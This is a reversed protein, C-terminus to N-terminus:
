GLSLGRVSGYVGCLWCALPVVAGLAVSELVEAGRRALPSRVPATFGLVITVVSMAAAVMAPWPRHPTVDLAASLVAIGMTAAGGVLLTAIQTGDAHSRARLLLAAGAAAAFAAGVLGPVGAVPEGAAVGAAGLVVAAASGAILGCLLDRAAVAHRATPRRSLGAALMAIRGAVRILGVGGAAAAAGITQASVGTAAGAMAAVAALIVLGALGCLIARAPGSCGSSPVAMAVVTGTAAMALLVNPAGPGGPVAVFGAVGALGSAAIAATLRRATPRWPHAATRVGAAVQEAPDDFRPEPAVDGARTLVLVAGDRIGHQALTKSGDLPSRGPQALRYPGLPQDRSSMPQPGDRGSVLEVAAAVLVAVPVAAPLALDAHGTDAYVAVRRLGPDTDTM